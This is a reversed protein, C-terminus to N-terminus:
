PSKRKAPDLPAHELLIGAIHAADMGRGSPIYVVVVVQPHDAPAFGAFWGHTQSSGASEATGTKGAGTIRAQRAPQGMGSEVSDELAAQVTSTANSEPHTKFENALWRYANALELPTVRIDEVGLVSLQIEQQSRPERFEALAENRVLGTAGLLGTSRLLVGFEGPHLTLAVEAFYSNCSWALAARAEFPPSVPHSCALRRGAIVLPRDCAVRWEANWRGSALLEYLILPKLTSGPAALTHAAENLHRAALVRGDRLDLVM